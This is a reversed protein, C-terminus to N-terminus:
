IFIISGNHLAYAELDLKKNICKMEYQNDEEIASQTGQVPLDVQIQTRDQLPLFYKQACVWASLFRVLYFTRLQIDPKNKKRCTGSRSLM